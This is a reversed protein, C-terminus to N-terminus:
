AARSLYFASAFYPSKRRAESLRVRLPKPAPAEPTQAARLTALYQATADLRAALQQQGALWAAAAKGHAIPAREPLEDGEDDGMPSPEGPPDDFRELDDMAVEIGIILAIPWHMSAHAKCTCVWDGDMTILHAPHGPTSSPVIRAGSPLVDPRVGKRYQELARTYATTQRREEIAHAKDHAQEALRAASAHEQALRELAGIIACDIPDLDHTDHQM